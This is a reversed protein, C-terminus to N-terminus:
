EGDAREGLLSNLLADLSDVNPMEGPCGLMANWQQMKAWFELDYRSEAVRAQRRMRQYTRWHMGRPKSPFPVTMNASGGLRQRIAQAAILGRGGSSERQSQYVLRLCKRCYFGALGCYLIAVRQSCAPCLLWPRHGGYTCATWDIMLQQEVDQWQGGRARGRYELTLAGPHPDEDTIRLGISGADQDGRRWSMTYFGRHLMGHRALYRIDLRNTEEATDM